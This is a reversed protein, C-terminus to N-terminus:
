CRSLAWTSAKHPCSHPPFSLCPSSFTHCLCIVFLHHWIHLYSVQCHPPFFISIEPTSEAQCKTLLLQLWRTPLHRLSLSSDNKEPESLVPLRSLSALQQLFMLFHNFLLSICLSLSFLFWPHSIPFSCSVNQKGKFFMLSSFYM